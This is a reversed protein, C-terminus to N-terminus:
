FNILTKLQGIDIGAPCSLRVGNPFTVEISVCDPVLHNRANSVKVPIFAKQVSENKKAPFGKEQKYKRLWYAFTKVSLKEASCFKVQSLGSGKWMEIALYMEEKSYKQNKRM